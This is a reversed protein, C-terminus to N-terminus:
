QSAKLEKLLEKVERGIDETGQASAARYAEGQGAEAAQRPAAANVAEATAKASSKAAAYDRLRRALEALRELKAALELAEEPRLSGERLRGEISSALADMYDRERGEEILGKFTLGLDRHTKSVEIYVNPGLYCRRLKPRPKGDPGREYGEYHVAYYYVNNGIRRRELYRYPQGCRLCTPLGQSQAEQPQSGGEGEL